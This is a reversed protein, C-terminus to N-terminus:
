GGSWGSRSSLRKREDGFSSRTKCYLFYGQRDTLHRRPHTSHGQGVAETGVVVLVGRMQLQFNSGISGGAAQAPIVALAWNGVNAVLVTQVLASKAGVDM